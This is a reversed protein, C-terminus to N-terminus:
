TVTLTFRATFSTAPHSWPRTGTRWRTPPRPWRNSRPSRSRGAAGVGARVSLGGGGPARDVRRRRGVFALRRDRGLEYADDFERRGVPAREGREAVADGTPIGRDDLVLHRRAPLRLRWRARPTGPVRLYPHWGFAIPVRRRATPVITTDVVLRDDHATVAVDIRHPFPFAPSDVTLSARMWATRGRTEQADVHWGPQGVLLGHIPLGHDDTHLARGTLDVNVGAARYRRSALRNAWPALLPLGATHGARLADVGGPLALYERGRFRLSVGTMGVGPLFTAALEGARLEIGPEGRFRREAVSASSRAPWVLELNEVLRLGPAYQLEIGPKLGYDPIRRHWERLTVRLERRALHSGLCRHVGGGFTLHRNVDRDFRVEMADPYEAPDVNAAGVNVLVFSGAPIETHGAVPCASATAM